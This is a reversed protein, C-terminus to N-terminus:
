FGTRLGGATPLKTMLEDQIDKITEATVTLTVIDGTSFSFATTGPTNSTDDPLCTGASRVITLTDGTRGTVRVIERKLVAFPAITDM